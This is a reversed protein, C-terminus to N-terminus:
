TQPSLDYDFHKKLFNSKELVMWGLNLIHKLFEGQNRKKRKKRGVM